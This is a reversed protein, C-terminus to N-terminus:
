LPPLPKGRVDQFRKQLETGNNKRVQQLLARRFKEESRSASSPDLQSLASQMALVREQTRVERWLTDYEKSWAYDGGSVPDNIARVMAAAMADYSQEHNFFTTQQQKLTGGVNTGVAFDAYSFYGRPDPVFPIMLESPEAGIMIPPWNARSNFKANPKASTLYQLFDIALEQNKSEKFIAMPFGGGRGSDASRGTVQEGWPEGKAPLLYDIVGLKWPAPTKKAFESRFGEADWSGTGIFVARGQVFMFQAQQRDIAAHDAGMLATIADVTEYFAKVQPSDFGVKKQIMGTYTELASVIGDLNADLAPELSATFAIQYRGIFYSVGYCSAMTRVDRGVRKAYAQTKPGIALLEGFTKPPEDSGTVEKLLSLNVFIRTGVLNCPISYYDVLKPRYGSQMGDRTTERWALGEFETGINYPNPRAILSGLPLFYRISPEDEYALKSQGAEILDPATGSILQTNLWQPYVKETIPMQLIRVKVGQGAKMEQYDDIVSQMADRFGDELQWHCLRLVVEGPAGELRRENRMVGFVSAVFAIVFLAAGVYGSFKRKDDRPDAM